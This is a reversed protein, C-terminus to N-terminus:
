KRKILETEIAKGSKDEIEITYIENDEMVSFGIVERVFPSTNKYLTHNSLYYDNIISDPITFRLKKINNEEVLEIKEAKRFDKAIVKLAYTVNYIAESEDSQVKYQKQVGVLVGSILLILISSIVLVALLEILTLGKENTLRKRM